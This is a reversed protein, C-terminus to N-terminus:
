IETTKEVHFKFFLLFFNNYKMIFGFLHVLYIKWNAVNQKSRTM